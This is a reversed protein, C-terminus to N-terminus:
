ASIINAPYWCTLVSKEESYPELEQINTTHHFRPFGYLLFPTKKM